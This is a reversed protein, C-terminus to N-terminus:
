NEFAISINLSLGQISPDTVTLQEGASVLASLAIDLNKRTAKELAPPKPMYLTKSSTAISPSSLQLDGDKLTQMLENLTMTKSITMKRVAETCVPCDEKREYVFTHSHIGTTGMYMMYTNLQQSYYSLLKTVEHVCAAAIIANTSAVAPIINKVVGMTLMYTVGSIDFKNAREVAREYVWKMDDPSDTDLKRDPFEKPWQLVYAYAICHEPRRPTEAITCLPYSTQPPFADLSCEFCSTIRPLIVRAQGSFGETGGDVIPVITSPDPDGNEDLQVLGCVTANLWRRAQVNDLGSIICNFSAYFSPDKDQIMGHHPTVKMWPCRQNIYAAAVKAKSEGVDKQRFLFQRNLNTVDITDLDIVDVNRIGSMSLDKLLECGLGGAGVVLVRASSLASGEPLDATTTFKSFSVPEFEGIPLAGTENAFPTPRSLLTLLSARPELTADIDM